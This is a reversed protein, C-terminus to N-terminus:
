KLPIEVLKVPGQCCMCPGPSLTKIACIDCYYYLDCVVGNRISKMGTMEFIQTKPLIHGALILEKERVQPDVFLTESLKTRLLTYFTGDKTKFGYINTVARTSPSNLDQGAASSVPVLCAFALVLSCSTPGIRM